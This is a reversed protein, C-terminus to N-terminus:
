WLNGVKRKKPNPQSRNNPETGGSAPLASELRALTVLQMNGANKSDGLTVFAAFTVSPLTPESEHVGLNDRKCAQCFIPEFLM